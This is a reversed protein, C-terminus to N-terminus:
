VLLLLALMGLMVCVLSVAEINPSAELKYPVKVQPHRDRM